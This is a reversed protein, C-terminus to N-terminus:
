GKHYTCMQTSIGCACFGPRDNRWIRWDEQQLPIDAVTKPETQVAKLYYAACRADVGFAEDVLDFKIFKYPYTGRMPDSTYWEPEPVVKGNTGFIKIPLFPEWDEGIWQVTDGIKMDEFNM